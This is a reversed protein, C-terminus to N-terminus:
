WTPPRYFSICQRFPTQTLPRNRPLSRVTARSTTTYTASLPCSSNYTQPPWACHAQLCLMGSLPAPSRRILSWSSVSSQRNHHHHYGHLCVSSYLLVPFCPWQYTPSQDQSYFMLFDKWELLWNTRKQSHDIKVQWWSARLSDCIM